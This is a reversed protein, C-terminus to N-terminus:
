QFLKTRLHHCDSAFYHSELIFRERAIKNKKVRINVSSSATPISTFKFEPWLRLTVLAHAVHYLSCVGSFARLRAKVLDLTRCSYRTISVRRPIKTTPFTM